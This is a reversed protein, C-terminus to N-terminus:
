LVYRATSFVKELMEIIWLNHDKVFLKLRLKDTVAVYATFTGTSFYIQQLLLTCFGMLIARVRM